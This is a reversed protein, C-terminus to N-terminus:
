SIIGIIMIFTFVKLSQPLALFYMLFVFVLSTINVQIDMM